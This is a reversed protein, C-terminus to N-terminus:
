QPADRALTDLESLKFRVSLIYPSEGQDWHGYTTAVLTGDPLREVGPYSTDYDKTNDKLRVSYQGSTGKVIDEWTGVWGVWDGETITDIHRAPRDRFSYPFM